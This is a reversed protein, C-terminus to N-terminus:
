FPVLLALALVPPALLRRLLSTSLPSGFSLPRRPGPIFAPYHM